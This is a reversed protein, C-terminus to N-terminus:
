IYAAKASRYNSTAQALMKLQQNAVHRNQGTGKMSKVKGRKRNQRAITKRVGHIQMVEDKFKEREARRQKLLRERYEDHSKIYGLYSRIDNKFVKQQHFDRDVYPTKNRNYDIGGLNEHYLIFLVPDKGKPVIRWATDEFSVVFFEGNKIFHLYNNKECFAKVERREKRYQRGIACCCSCPEYGVNEANSPTNFIIRNKEKTRKTYWCDETHYVKKRSNISCYVM